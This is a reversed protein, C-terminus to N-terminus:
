YSGPCPNELPQKLVSAGADAGSTGSILGGGAENALFGTLWALPANWNITCENVSWAEIHDLYCKAPLIGGRKWGAGRVWPDQMGSNPGGTLVGCPAMPYAENIQNAWFRHHPYRSTHVGYGTVYSMDMPNRGLLYDMGSVAGNLYKPDGSVMYAYAMVMSNNVVLSNSGWVYGTEDDNYALTSVTYPQGYGQYKIRNLYMGAASLLNDVALSYDETNVRGSCVILSLTGLASTHGWDFSAYTNISEGGSLGVPISCFFDSATMDKYYASDGTTLYLECAAWYFEDTVTDDGYAGGGITEDLPAYMAPNAKAAAYTRVAVDLCQKAFDDDLGSWIRAAQAACAAVNLTSATTPPKIVRKQTDDAPAVGLGTWKEDHIKHYVMDKCPGDQVLMTFMWELEFRAEDLLDPRGNGNEPISMTGDAFQQERGLRKATEYQNQMTWLAIGGNVIYKGQDGADYWGGSVDQTGSTGTYGWIQEIQAVDPVHGAARALTSVDGSTIYRSEIAIGSRNQYFYNLADFMMASYAQTCGIRFPRSTRGDNTRITYTGEDTLVTFDIKQLSDGSDRDLGYLETLGSFVERGFEDYVSFAVPIDQDTLLVAMKDASPFYGVQNTLIDSRIWEKEPVYDNEDSTLDFLSMNDFVIETGAPFCGGSTYPGDGGLHFAWEAVDVGATPVFTLDVRKTENARVPILNWTADFDSGDSMNHWVEVNGDLNGIKTYYQGDNSATIDYSLQYTHGAAIKLGKHCFQCDWRDDGGNSAGGPNLIRIHYAGGTIEFDMEATASEVVHWPLGSGDDFNTQGLQEGAYATVAMSLGTLLVAMALIMRFLKGSNVYHM